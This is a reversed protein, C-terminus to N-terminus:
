MVGCWYAIIYTKQSYILSKVINNYSYIRCLGEGIYLLIYNGILFLVISKYSYIRCLSVVIYLLM